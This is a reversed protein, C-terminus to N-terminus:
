RWARVRVNGYHADATLTMGGRPTCTACGPGGIGFGEFAGIVGGVHRYIRNEHMYKAEQYAREQDTGSFTPGSSRYTTTSYNRGRFWRRAHADSCCAVLCAFMVVFLIAKVKM